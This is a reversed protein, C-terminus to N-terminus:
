FAKNEARDLKCCGRNALNANPNPNPDPSPNPSPDTDPNPNARAGVEVTDQAQGHWVDVNAECSDCNVRYVLLPPRDLIIAFTRGQVHM